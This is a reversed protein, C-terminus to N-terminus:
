PQPRGMIMAWVISDASVGVVLECLLMSIKSDITKAWADPGGLSRGLSVLQGTPTCLATKLRLQAALAAQLCPRCRQQAHQCSGLPVRITM